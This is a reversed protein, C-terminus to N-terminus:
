IRKWLCYFYRSPQVKGPIIPEGSRKFNYHDTGLDNFAEFRVCNLVKNLDSFFGKTLIEGDEHQFDKPFLNSFKSPKWFIIMQVIVSQESQIFNTGNCLPCMQQSHIYQPDGTVAYDLAFDGNTTIINPCAVQTPPYFLKCARGLINNITDDVASAFTQQVTAPLTLV